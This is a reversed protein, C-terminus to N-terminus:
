IRELTQSHKTFMLIKNCGKQSINHNKELTPFQVTKLTFSFISPLAALQM